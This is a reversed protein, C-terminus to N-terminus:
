PIASCGATTVQKRRRLANTGGALVAFGVCVWGFVDGHEHYFTTAHKAPLPITAIMFGAGYVSGTKDTYLQRWRGTADIWCTIGTNACRILPVGNEITRFTAAAAQQWQNAGEGFWGDNTINVLFDTDADVSKRALDPFIDEFCILASTHIKEPAGDANTLSLEFPAPDRGAEYSGTIPTFWQIFPLWRVLPIYEGFIVLHRKRYSSELKGRPNILLSANFYNTATPTVEADDAGIIMWAHHDRALAAIPDGFEPEYRPLGPLAAEPWVVVDPQLLMAEGTLRLLDQFRAADNAPNWIMTQPISPQVLAVRIEREAAPQHAVQHFGFFM